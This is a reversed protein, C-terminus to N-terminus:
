EHLGDADEYEDPPSLEVLIKAIRRGDRKLIEFRFEGRPTSVTIHDGSDPLRGFQSLLYGAVTSYEDSDDMFGEFQVTQEFQHMDAAGEVIWRNEEDVIIDPTEDEDPFDGAIAEFIDIPTVLGEVAGFENIVIVLQGRAGKLTQMLDLIPITEHVIIPRRLHDERLRNETLLDAILDKARGIGVIDDLSGRCVPFFGHPSGAIERRVDDPSDDLNIWTIDTRPTMISHVSRDALRLVGSVMNREEEGFPIEAQSPEMAPEPQETNMPRKGLMRLIGEATRERMPRTNEMSLLNRRALQNLTEITVAFGIAAYLYGKPVKFGFGEAVLAFGIMLLFGLCLIVVTPHRGVFATLPKSAVLMLAIAIVVATMMVAIHDVMGVATIVADLSFVADLVVIQTVVVWFSAYAPSGSSSHTKGEVREHMEMTGKFVLFFGGLILILDRGSFSADAVTFLPATLQFMWSIAALLGLRMLLALGLGIVRARDRQAPPLKDALIAIFILNDIGLVIELVVLTLLGIWAAPDTLLEM